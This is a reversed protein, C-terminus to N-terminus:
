GLPKEMFVSYASDPYTGFPGRPTFGFRAYLRHAADLGTGSELRLVPLKLALATDEIQRLLAAAAGKGRAAPATFMSKIEGYGDQMALAGTALTDSGSRATFFSINDAQLATLDLFHNAEAPYLSGMLAHSAELLARAPAATPDSAEVIIM